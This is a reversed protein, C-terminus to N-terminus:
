EGTDEWVIQNYSPIYSLWGFNLMSTGMATISDEPLSGDFIPLSIDAVQEATLSTFTPILGRMM